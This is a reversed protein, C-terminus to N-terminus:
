LVYSVAKCLWSLSVVGDWVHWGRGSPLSVSFALVGFPFCGCIGGFRFSRLGGVSVPLHLALARLGSPHRIWRPDEVLFECDM